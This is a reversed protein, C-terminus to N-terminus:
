AVARAASSAPNLCIDKVSGTVAVCMLKRQRVLAGPSPHKTSLTRITARHHTSDACIGTAPM